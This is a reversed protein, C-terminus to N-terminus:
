STNRHVFNFVFKAAWPNKRDKKNNAKIRVCFVGCQRAWSCFRRAERGTQAHDTGEESYFPGRPVSAIVGFIIHMVHRIGLDSM